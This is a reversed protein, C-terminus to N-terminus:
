WYPGGQGVPRLRMNTATLLPSADRAAVIAAGRTDARVCAFPEWQSHGCAYHVLAYEEDDPSYVARPKMREVDWWGRAAHARQMDLLPSLPVTGPTHPDSDSM